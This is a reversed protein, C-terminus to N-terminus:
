SSLAIRAAQMRQIRKILPMMQMMTPQGSVLIAIGTKQEPHWDRKEGSALATIWAHHMPGLEGIWGCWWWWWSEWAWYLRCAHSLGLLLCTGKQQIVPQELIATFFSWLGPIICFWQHLSSHRLVQSDAQRRAHSHYASATGDRITMHQYTKDIPSSYLYSWLYACFGLEIMRTQRWWM